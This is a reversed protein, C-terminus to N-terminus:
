ARVETAPGDIPAWWASWTYAGGTAPGHSNRERAMRRAAREAAAQSRHRSRRSRAWGSPTDAQDYWGAEHTYPPSM